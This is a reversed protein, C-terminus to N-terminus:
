FNRVGICILLCSHSGDIFFSDNEKISPFNSINSINAVSLFSFCVDQQFCRRQVCFWKKYIMEVKKKCDGWWGRGPSHRLYTLTPVILMTKITVVADIMLCPPGRPLIQLSTGLEPVYSLFESRSRHIDYTTATPCRLNCRQLRTSVCSAPILVWLLLQSNLLTVGLVDQIHYQWSAM